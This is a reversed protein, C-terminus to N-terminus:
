GPNRRKVKRRREKGLQRLRALQKGRKSEPDPEELPEKIIEDILKLDKPTYDNRAHQNGPHAYISRDLHQGYKDRSRKKSVCKNFLRKSKLMELVM